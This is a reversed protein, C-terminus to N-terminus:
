VWLVGKLDRTIMHLGKSINTTDDYLWPMTAHKLAAGNPCLRCRSQVSGEVPMVYM